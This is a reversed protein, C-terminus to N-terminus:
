AVVFDRRARIQTNDQVIAILDNGSYIATDLASSGGFNLTKDLRYSRTSGSVQIKDGSSRKFDTITAYGFGLYSVGGEATGIV